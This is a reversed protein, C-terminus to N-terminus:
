RQTTSPPTISSRKGSLINEVLIFLCGCLAQHVHMNLWSRLMLPVTTSSTRMTSKGIHTGHGHELNAHARALAHKSAGTAPPFATVIVSIAAHAASPMPVEAAPPDLQDGHHRAHVAGPVPDHDGQHQPGLVAGPEGTVELRRVCSQHADVALLGDVPEQVDCPAGRAVNSTPHRFPQLRRHRRRKVAEGRNAHVLGAVPLTVRVDGHDDVMLSVAHDPRVVIVAPVREVQEESLEGVHLLLGDVEDGAVLHMSDVRADGLAARVRFVHEVSEVDDGPHGAREVLDSFSQPVLGSVYAVLMGRITHAADFVRHQLVGVIRGAFLVVYDVGQAVRVGLTPEVAGSLEPFQQPGQESMGEVLGLRLELMPHEMGGAAADGFDDFEDLLNPSETGVDQACDFQSVGVGLEFCDSALDFDGDAHGVSEVVDVVEDAGDHESAASGVCDM